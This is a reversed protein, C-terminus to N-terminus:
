DLFMDEGARADGLLVREAASIGALMGSAWAWHLNFGGCDGDVDVAEGASFFGPCVLSEMTRADFADVMLGGRVVQCQNVNAMGIIGLRFCKLARMLKLCLYENARTKGTVDVSAEIVRAISPLIMGRLFDDCTNVLGNRSLLEYRAHVFGEISDLEISPFFDIHLEDYLLTQRSLNFIMIGSVGYNRFLLEGYESAVQHKKRWLSAKCRVRVGDLSKVTDGKTKLPGLVLHSASVPFEKNQPVLMSPSCGGVSWGMGARGGCALIVADAHMFVGDRTRLIYQNSEGCPEEISAIAVGCKEKVGCAFAAARLVDLVSSAKNTIPYLKGDAETRWLLGHDAFFAQVANAVSTDGSTDGPTDRFSEDCLRTYREELSSFVEEVFPTNRYQGNMVHENSFNCRGNGTALISRGVREDAEYIVVECAELKAGVSRNRLARVREGAAIAAALGSAGGGVVAIRKM